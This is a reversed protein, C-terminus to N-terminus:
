CRCCFLKQLWSWALVSREERLRDSRVWSPSYTSRFATFFFASLSPAIIRWWIRVAGVQVGIFCLRGCPAKTGGHSIIEGLTVFVRTWVVVVNMFLTFARGVAHTELKVILREDSRVDSLCGGIGTCGVVVGIEARGFLLKRGERHLTPM